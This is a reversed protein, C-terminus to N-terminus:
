QQGSSLDRARVALEPPTLNAKGRRGPLGLLERGPAEQSMDRGRGMGPFHGGPPDEHGLGSQIHGCERAESLHM